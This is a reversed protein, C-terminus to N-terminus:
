AFLVPVRLSHIRVQLIMQVAAVAALAEAAVASPLTVLLVMQVAQGGLAATEVMHRAQPEQEM